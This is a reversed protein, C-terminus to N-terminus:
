TSEEDDEMEDGENHIPCQSEDWGCTCSLVDDDSTKRHDLVDRMQKDRLREVEQKAESEAQLWAGATFGVNGPAMALRAFVDAEAILSWYYPLMPENADAGAKLAERKFDDANDLRQWAQMWAAVRGDMASM